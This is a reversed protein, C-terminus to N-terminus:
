LFGEFLHTGDAPVQIRHRGVRLSEHHSQVIQDFPHSQLRTHNAGEVTREGDHDFIIDGRRVQKVDGLFGQAIRQSVCVSALDADAKPLVIQLDGQSDM